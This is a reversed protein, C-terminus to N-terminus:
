PQRQPRWQGDTQESVRFDARIIPVIGYCLRLRRGGSGRSSPRGPVADDHRVLADRVRDAGASEPRGPPDAALWASGHLPQRLREQDAGRLFGARQRGEFDCRLAQGSFTSRSSPPLLEEGVTRASVEALRRGDFTAAKGECRGTAQVQRLLQALASLTDVTNAQLAAPVPDREADAPPTMARIAPQGHEYEIVTERQQGRWTGSGAYRRPAASAANWDGEATSLQHGWFLVGALGTTRYAVEVRYGRPGLSYVAQMQAINLGRAYIDYAVSTETAASLAAPQALTPATLLLLYALTALFRM